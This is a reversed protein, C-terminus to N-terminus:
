RLTLFFATVSDDPSSNVVSDADIVIVREQQGKEPTVLVAGDGQGVNM